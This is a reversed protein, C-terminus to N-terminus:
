HEKSRFHILLLTGADQKWAYISKKLKCVYNSYEENVYGDLLMYVEKELNGQSFDTQIDMQRFEWNKANSLALLSRISSDRACQPHFCKLITWEKQKLTAKLWSDLKM